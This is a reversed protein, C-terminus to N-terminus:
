AAARQLRDNIAAGIGSQPIPAVAIRPHPAAAGDHLCQYLNAAAEACDGNASLTVDGAVTGFGIMFEDAQPGTVELRVPKGPAYHSALQGPAEIKGKDLTLPAKGLTATIDEETLPGPRLIQWGEPRLAVITSEVGKACPGGDLIADVKGGLSQMVHTPKSPSICGSRNASPAALPLSLENLLARMIPHAPIRVAITPLGATVAAAVGSPQKAPLILTMPGPWYTEALKLARADFIALDQAQKMTAVHSILPNFDPRGKARYINAVAEAQDARAALGYVTETPVAVLKGSRLLRAAEAIGTEDPTLMHPPHKGSM